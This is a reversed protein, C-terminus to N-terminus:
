FLPTKAAMYSKGLALGAKGEKYPFLISNVQCYSFLKWRDELLYKLKSAECSKEDEM